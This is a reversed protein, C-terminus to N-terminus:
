SLGAREALFATGARRFDRSGPATVHNRGPIEFFSGQELHAALTRSDELILDDAGTAVLTSQLPMAGTPPLDDHRRMGEALAILARMDNFPLREALLVYRRTVADAIDIGEDLYARAQALDLRRLPLGDPIGGLVGFGVHEPSTAMLHWGVRGGLSYGLYGVTDLLYTDLVTILDAALAPMNYQDPDHPKDSAGHGRQDVAVVRFGARLLERVWGTDVWNDKASSAFGHVALVAPDRDDGWSYTAIRHGEASMVFQPDPMETIPRLTTTM